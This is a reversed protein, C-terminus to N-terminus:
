VIQQPGDAWIGWTFITHKMQILLMKNWRFSVFKTEDLHFLNEEMQIFCIKNWRFSVHKTWHREQKCIGKFVLKIKAYVM